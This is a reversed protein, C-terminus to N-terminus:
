AKAEERNMLHHAWDTVAHQLEHALVYRRRLPSLTSRLYITRTDVHWGGDTAQAEALSWGCARALEAATCIRVRVIFGFPLRILRPLSLRAM